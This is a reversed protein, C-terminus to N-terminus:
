FEADNRWNDDFAAMAKEPSNGFGAVGSQINDGYLACWQNGDRSLKPRFLVSPRMQMEAANAATIAANMMENLVGQESAYM